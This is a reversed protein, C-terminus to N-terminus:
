LDSLLRSHQVVTEPNWSLDVSFPPDLLESLRKRYLFFALLNRPTLEKFLTPFPESETEQLSVMTKEHTSQGM